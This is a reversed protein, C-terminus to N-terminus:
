RTPISARSSAGLFLYHIKPAKILLESSARWRACYLGNNRAFSLIFSLLCLPLYKYFRHRLFLSHKASSCRQFYFAGSEHLRALPGPVASLSATRFSTPTSDLAKLNSPVSLYYSFKWIATPQQDPSDLPLETASGMRAQTM